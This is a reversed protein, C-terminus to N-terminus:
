RAPKETNALSVSPSCLASAFGGVASQADMTSTKACQAQAQQNLLAQAAAAAQVIQERSLTETSVPPRGSISDAKASAGGGNAHLLQLGLLGHSGSHLYHYRLGNLNKYRKDCNGVQCVYSKEPQIAAVCSKTPTPPSESELSPTGSATNSVNGSTQIGFARLDPTTTSSMNAQGFARKKESVSPSRTVSTDFASPSDLHDSSGSGLPTQNGFNTNIPHPRKNLDQLKARVPSHLPTGAASGTNETTESSGMNSEDMEEDSMLTGVEDEDEFRVHCELNVVYEAVDKGFSIAMAERFSGSGGMGTSLGLYSGASGPTRTLMVSDNGDKHSSDGNKAIPIPGQTVSSMYVM